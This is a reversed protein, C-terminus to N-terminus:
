SFDIIGADSLQKMAVPGDADRSKNHDGVTIRKIGAGVLNVQERATPVAASFFYGDCLKYGHRARFMLIRNVPEQFLTYKPQNKEIEFIDEPDEMTFGTVAHGRAIAAVYGGNGNEMIAVAFKRRHHITYAQQVVSQFVAESPAEVPESTIPSDEVPVYGPHSHFITDIRKDKRYLVHVSIGAKECIQMSMGEFHGSRRQAWDKDFGKHDIFIERVGADALNKVCNPCPPDTIALRAGMVPEKADLLTAVEGHISGSSNGIRMEMGFSKLISEPWYNTRSLAFNRGFLTAAIKNTAHQSSGVIDVAEQMATYPDEHSM